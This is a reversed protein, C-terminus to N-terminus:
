EMTSWYYGIQMIKTYLAKAHFHGDYLGNHAQELTTAIKDQTLCRLLEGDFLRRYLLEGIIVYRVLTRKFQVKENRDFKKM